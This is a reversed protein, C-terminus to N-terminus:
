IVPSLSLSYSPWTAGSDASVFLYGNGFGQDNSGVIQITGDSNQAAQTFSSASPLTSLAAYTAGYDSSTYLTGTGNVGVIYALLVYQGSASTSVNFVANSVSPVGTAATWTVGYDTSYHPVGGSGGDLIAVLYQSTTDSSLLTTSTSQISPWGSM